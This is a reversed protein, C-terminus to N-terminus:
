KLFRKNEELLVAQLYLRDSPVDTICTILTIINDDKTVLIDQNINARSDSIDYISQLYNAFIDEDAFDYKYYLHENSYFYCAFIQYTLIKTPTIIYIEENNVFFDKERFKHLQGFMSGDLMNHGYILTNPDSFDKNNVKETYICGPYGLSGDINYNLYYSDDTEHQLIPFEIETGPISLWGYVDPNIEALKDFDIDSEYKIEVSDNEEVKNDELKEVEKESDYDYTSFSPKDFNTSNRKTSAEINQVEAITVVEIIQEEVHMVKLFLILCLFNPLLILQILLFFNKKRSGKM